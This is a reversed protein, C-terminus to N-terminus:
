IILFCFSFFGFVSTFKLSQKHKSPDYAVTLWQALLSIYSGVLYKESRNGSVFNDTMHPHGANRKQSTYKTQSLVSM